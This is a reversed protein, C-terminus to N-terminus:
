ASRSPRHHKNGLGSSPPDLLPMPLTDFFLRSSSLERRRQPSPLQVNASPQHAGAAEPALGFFEVVHTVNNYGRSKLLEEIQMVNKRLEATTEPDIEQM